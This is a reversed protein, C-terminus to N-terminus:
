TEPEWILEGANFLRSLTKASEVLTRTVRTEALKDSITIRLVAVAGVRDALLPTLREMPLPRDGPPQPIFTIGMDQQALTRLLEANHSQVRPRVEHWGGGILPLRSGRGPANSWALLPHADLASLDEPAGHTSLYSESALLQVPVRTLVFTRFPGEHPPPGDHIRMNVDPSMPTRPDDIHRVRLRLQGDSELIHRLAFAHMLKPLGVPLELTGEPGAGLAARELGRELRRAEELLAASRELLDEGMATLSTGLPTRVLLTTAMAAELEKLLGSTTGRSLALHDAAAQLSGFDAVAQLARLQRLNM